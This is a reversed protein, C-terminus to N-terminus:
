NNPNEGFDVLSPEFGIANDGSKIQEFFTIIERMRRADISNSRICADLCWAFKHCPDLEVVEQVESDHLGM